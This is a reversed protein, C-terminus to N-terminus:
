DDNMGERQWDECVSSEPVRKKAMWRPASHFARFALELIRRTHFEAPFAAGLQFQDTGLAVRGIWWLEFKAALTAV